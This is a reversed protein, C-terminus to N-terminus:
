NQYLNLELEIIQNKDEIIIEQGGNKLIIKGSKFDHCIKAIKRDELMEHAIKLIEKDETIYLLGFREDFSL